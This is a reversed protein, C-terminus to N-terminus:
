LTNRASRLAKRVVDVPMPQNTWQVYAAAAQHVLMELGGITTAGGTAADRLLRTEEPNYVLDYLIQDETFDSTAPWPTAAVDGHMGLPTANVLLRASRVDPAADALAVVRLAGKEDYTAMDAALKEARGTSRAALTLRRPRFTTLLAYAVARAAGGGGFIVMEAGRVREAYPLLPELFGVVDTNDGFIIQRATADDRRMVLTNVAGVAAAQASLEDVLPLIAQKHPITVNSGAFGLAWLGRVAEALAEPPVPLALYVYNLKQHQFATNHILPSLSHGVPYGLLGVPRTVADVQMAIMPQIFEITRAGCM